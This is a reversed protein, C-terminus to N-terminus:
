TTGSQVQHLAMSSSSVYILQVVWVPWSKKNGHCHAEEEHKWEKQMMRKKEQSQEILEQYEELIQSSKRALKGLQIAEDQAVRRRGREEHWKALRAQALQKDRKSQCVAAHKNALAKKL